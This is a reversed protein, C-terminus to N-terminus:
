LGFIEYKIKRLKDAFNKSLFKLIFKKILYEKKNLLTKNFLLEPNDIFKKKLKIM